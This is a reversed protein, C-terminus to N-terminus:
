VILVYLINNRLELTLCTVSVRIVDIVGRYTIYKYRFRYQLNRFRSVKRAHKVPTFCLVRVRLRASHIPARAVMRVHIAQIVSTSTQFIHCFIYYTNRLNSNCHQAPLTVFLYTIHYIRALNLTPYDKFNLIPKFTWIYQMSTRLTFVGDKTLKINLM